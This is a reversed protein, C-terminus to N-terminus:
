PEPTMRLLGGQKADVLLWISGDPAQHVDRIRRKLGIREEEKVIGNKISLRILAM